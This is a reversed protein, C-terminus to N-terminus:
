LISEVHRQQQICVAKQNKMEDMKNATTSPKDKLKNHYGVNDLIIVSNPPINPLLQQTLWEMYHQQNMEDHDDASNTKWKFMLGVGEGWGEGGDARM